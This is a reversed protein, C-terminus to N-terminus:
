ISQHRSSNGRIAEDHLNLPFHSLAFRLRKILGLVGDLVKLFLELVLRLVVPAIAHIKHRVGPLVSQNLHISLLVSLDLDHIHENGQFQASLKFIFGSM